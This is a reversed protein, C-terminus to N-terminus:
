EFKCQDMWEKMRDLDCHCCCQGEPGDDKILSFDWDPCYHKKIPALEEM